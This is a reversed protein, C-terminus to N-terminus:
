ESRTNMMYRCFPDWLCSGMKNKNEWDLLFNSLFEAFSQRDIQLIIEGFSFLIHCLKVHYSFRAFSPIPKFHHWIYSHIACSFFYQLSVQVLHSTHSLCSPLPKSQHCCPGNQGTMPGLISSIYQARQWEPSVCIWLCVCLHLMLSNFFNFVSARESWQQFLPHFPTGAQRETEITKLHFITTHNGLMKPHPCLELFCFNEIWKNVILNIYIAM